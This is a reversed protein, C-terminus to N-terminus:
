SEHIIRGLIQGIGPIQAIEPWDSRVLIYSVPSDYKAASDKTRDDTTPSDFPSSITKVKEVNMFVQWHIPWSSTGKPTFLQSQIKGWVWIRTGEPINKLADGRLYFSGTRGDMEVKYPSHAKVTRRLVGSLESLHPDGAHSSLASNEPQLCYQPVIRM